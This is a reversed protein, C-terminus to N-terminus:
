SGLKPLDLQTACFDTKLSLVLLCVRFLNFIEIFDNTKAAEM